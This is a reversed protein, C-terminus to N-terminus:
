VIPPLSESRGGFSPPLHHIAHCFVASCVSFVVCFFLQCRKGAKVLIM